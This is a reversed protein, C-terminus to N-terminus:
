GKKGVKKPKRDAEKAAIAKRAEAVLEGIAREGATEKELRLRQKYVALEHVAKKDAAVKTIGGLHGERILPRGDLKVLERLKATYQAVTALKGQEAQSALFDLALNTITRLRAIEDHGYYNKAVKMHDSKPQRGEEIGNFTTLGAYPKSAHARESIIDAATASTVAWHVTNQFTAFYDSKDRDTMAHYDSCKSVLELARQWVNAESARIDAIEELLEDLRDNREPDKLRPADLVFGKLLYQKLISNSWRRFMIAQKTAKVRYGVSLVMDLSYVEVPKALEAIYAKRVNGEEPLEGEKLINNIHIGIRQVSRGFLDAMQKRTAWPEDGDFRLELKYGNPLAYLVFQDGTEVDERLALPGDESAEDVADEIEDKDTQAFRQLAEEFPVDVHVPSQYKKGAM